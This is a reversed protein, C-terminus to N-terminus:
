RLGKFGGERIANLMGAMWLKGGKKVHTSPHLDHAAGM